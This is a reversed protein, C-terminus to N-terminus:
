PNQQVCSDTQTAVTVSERQATLPNGHVAQDALVPKDIPEANPDKSLEADINNTKWFNHSQVDATYERRSNIVSCVFLATLALAFMGIFATPFILVDVAIVGILILTLISAIMLGTVPIAVSLESYKPRKPQKKIHLVLDQLTKYKYPSEKVYSTILTKLYDNKIDNLFATEKAQYAQLLANAQEYESATVRDFIPFQQIYTRYAKIYEAFKRERTAHIM